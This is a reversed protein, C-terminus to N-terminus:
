FKKLFTVLEDTIFLNYMEEDSIRIDNMACFGVHDYEDAISELLRFGGGIGVCQIYVNSNEMEKIVKRTDSSDTADGDTIFIVYLPKEKTGSTSEDKKGFLGGFFGKKQAKKTGYIHNVEEFLPAYNTGGGVIPAVHKNVYSGYDAEVMPPLHKVGTNFAFVELTKDPDMAYAMAYIRDIVDQVTGDRYMGNMSGSIDVAFAVDVSVQPAKKKELSIKVTEVRKELSISM